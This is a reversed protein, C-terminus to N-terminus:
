LQFTREQREQDSLQEVYSSTTDLRRHGVSQRVFEIDKSNKWLKSIYGVRFSHSTINPQDPLSKSVFSMISNVDRTITERSLIQDHNSESTFIYSDPNKMLFLFEFDKKRDDVLERGERTLFAKHNSLGRKSRDIGIWHSELLTQLQSVKLPLLENIRIGTVILLCFAIKLRVRTYSPSEAAQILLRYIESSMPQCKPLRKRNARAEKRIAKKEEEKKLINLKETAIDLKQILDKNLDILEHNQKDLQVLEFFFFSFYKKQNIKQGELLLSPDSHIKKYKDEKWETIKNSNNNKVQELELIDDNIIEKM